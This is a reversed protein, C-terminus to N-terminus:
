PNYTGYGLIETHDISYSQSKCVDGSNGEITYVIGEGAREVIGVHDPNGDQGDDLWDFFIIDGPQPIYGGSQWLGRDRFWQVGDSCSAFRPLVGADLYGCKNACWSVFCACWEVHSEFGYWSWYPEGGVNGIQSQAVAVIDANGDTGYIAANWLSRYEESLLEALQSQQSSTFGLLVSM